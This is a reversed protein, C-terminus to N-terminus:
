RLGLPDNTEATGSSSRSRVRKQAEKELLDEPDVGEAAARERLTRMYKRDERLAKKEDNVARAVEGEDFESTTRGKVARTITRKVTTGPRGRVGPIEVNEVEEITVIRSSGDDKNIEIVNGTAADVIYHKNVGARDLRANAARISEIEKSYEHLQQDRGKQYTREEATDEVKEKRQRAEKTDERGELRRTEAAREEKEREAREFAGRREKTTLIADAADAASSTGPRSGYNSAFRLMTEMVYALKDQKSPKKPPPPAGPAAKAQQYSQEVPIGKKEAEEVLQARREAPTESWLQGFSMPAERSLAGEGGAQPAPDSFAPARVPPQYAPPEGFAGIMPEPPGPLVPGGGMGADIATLRRLAEGYKGVYGSNM